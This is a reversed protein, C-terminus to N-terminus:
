MRRRQLVGGLPHATREDHQLNSEYSIGGCTFLFIPL